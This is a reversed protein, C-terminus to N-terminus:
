GCRERADSDLIRMLTARRKEEAADQAAQKNEQEEPTSPAGQGGGSQAMLQAMRRQRIAELDAGDAM